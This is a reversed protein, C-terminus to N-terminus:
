GESFIFTPGDGALRGSNPCQGSRASEEHTIGPPLLIHVALVNDGTPSLRHSIAVEGRRFAEKISGM